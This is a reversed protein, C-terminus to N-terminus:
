EEHIRHVEIGLIWHLEGLDTIQIKFRIILPQSMAMITCDDVHVLVIIFSNGERQFFMAQNVDCRAFGLFKVM